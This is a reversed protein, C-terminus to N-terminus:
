ETVEWEFGGVYQGTSTQIKVITKGPPVFFILGLKADPERLDRRRVSNFDLRSDYGPHTPEGITYVEIYEQDRRTVIAWYGALPYLEGVEDVAFYQNVVSGVWNFLNGAITEVDRARTILQVMRYDEPLAFRRVANSGTSEIETRYASVRGNAYRGGRLNVRSLSRLAEPNMPVPLQDNQGSGELVTDIFRMQGQSTIGRAIADETLAILRDEPPAKAFKQETVGARAHRRYEVFDPEFNEDVLFILDMKIEQTAPLAFNNDYDVIRYTQGASADAGGLMVPVYQQPTGNTDGVIRLMTPRFRHHRGRQDHDASSSKLAVRVALFKQGGEPRVTTPKLPPDPRDRTPLRKRYSGEIPTNVTWWSLVNIGKAADGMAATLSENQVTNGTYSVWDPFHPYVDRFSTEGYAFSGASLLNVLGATFGDPNLWITNKEFAARGEEATSDPDREYRQYMMVRGGFPLMLFGTVMVGVSIQAITFGCIVGGGLDVPRPVSVNGRIFQDALVRLVLVTVAYLGVFVVPELFSPDWNIQGALTTSTWEFLGYAACAGIIACFVNILGSFFGFLSHYFTIAIILLLAIINLIM